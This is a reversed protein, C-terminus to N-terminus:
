TDKLKIRNIRKKVFKYNFTLKNKVKLSGIFRYIKGTDLYYLNYHKSILKAQTGGGASAESDIAVTIFNKKKMNNKSGFIKYLTASAVYCHGFLPQISNRERLKKDVLDPTLNELIVESVKDLNDKDYSILTM